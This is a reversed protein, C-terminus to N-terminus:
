PERGIREKPPVVKGGSVKETEQETLERIQEKTQQEQTQKGNTKDTM